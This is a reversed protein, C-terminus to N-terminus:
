GKNIIYFEIEDAKYWVKESFEREGIALLLETQESLWGTRFASNTDKKYRWVIKM